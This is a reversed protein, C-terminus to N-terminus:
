PLREWTLETEVSGGQQWKRRVLRLPSGAPALVARFAGQADVEVPIRVLGGALRCELSLGGSTDQGPHVRGELPALDFGLSWDVVGETLEREGIWSFNGFEGGPARLVLVVRRAFALTPTFHGDAGVPGQALEGLDYPDSVTWTWGTPDDLGSVRGRIKVGDLAIEVSRTEGEALVFSPEPMSIGPLQTSVGTGNDIEVSRVSVRWPGPRLNEFRFYGDEGVRQTLPWGDFANLGVVTGGVRHRPERTTVRGVVTAGPTLELEIPELDRGPEYDFPASLTSSWGDARAFLVYTGAEEPYLGFRGDADTQADFRGLRPVFRTFFGNILGSEEPTARQLLISAGSVPAGGALVRGRLGTRASLHVTIRDVEEPVQLRQPEFGDLEVQLESGPLPRDVLYESPSSESQAAWVSVGGALWRVRLGELQEVTPGEVNVTILEREALAITVTAGESLDDWRAHAPGWRHDPDSVWVDLPDPQDPRDNLNLEYEGGARTAGAGTYWDTKVTVRAGPLPTGDPTTVVLTVTFGRAVPKGPRPELVIPDIEVDQGEIVQVHTWAFLRGSAVAWVRQFGGQVTAEFRGQADTRAIWQQGGQPGNVRAREDFSPFPPSTAYITAREIPTGDSDVVTGTLRTVRHLVKTGFDYEVGDELRVPFHLSEYGERRAEFSLTVQAGVEAGSWKAIKALVAPSATVHLGITGDAGSERKPFLGEVLTQVFPGAGVNGPDLTVGEIPNGETDVFRGVLGASRASSAPEAAGEDGPTTSPTGTAEPSSNSSADNAARDATSDEQSPQASPSDDVQAVGVSRDTSSGPSSGDGVWSWIALSGIGILLTAALLSMWLPAREVRPAAVPVLALCWRRRDGDHATDLRERLQELARKLRWRVTSAPVSERRAIDALSLEEFYHLLVTRRYPDELAAVHDAVLRGTEFREAVADPTESSGEPTASAEERRDRRADTRFRQRALNRLVTSFWARPSRIPGKAQLAAIWAEQVLDDATAADQVLARAVRQIFATHEQLHALSPEAPAAATM